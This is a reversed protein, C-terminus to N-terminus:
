YVDYGFTAANSAYVVQGGSFTAFAHHFELGIFAPGLLAPFSISASAQGNSNLTGTFGTTLGGGAGLTFNTYADINVPINVGNLNFGPKFGSFTGALIYARGANAVGADLDFFVLGGSNYNVFNPRVVLAGWEDAGMDVTQFVRLERDVELECPSPTYAPDGADICPSAAMLHYDGFFVARLLPDADINGVGYNLTAGGGSVSVAAQGGQVDCYDVSHTAPNLASAIAIQNGIGASSTNDWAICNVMTQTSERNFLGGGSIASNRSITTGRYVNDCQFDSWVGGGGGAAAINSVVWCNLLQVTSRIRCYLGGGSGNTCVNNEIICRELTVDCDSNFSLGGGNNAATNSSFRCDEFTANAGIGVVAGGSGATAQNQSFDCNEFLPDSTTFGFSVIYAGGGNNTAGNFQILCDRITPAASNIYIGGGNLPNGGTLIFGDLVTTRGENSSFTVVSGGSSSLIQAFGGDQVHVVSITKGLLNLNEIYLGSSVCVTDGTTAANIAGQITPFQSPVLLNGAFLPSSCLVGSLILATGRRLRSIRFM